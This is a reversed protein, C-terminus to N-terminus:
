KEKMSLKSKKKTKLILKELPIRIVPNGKKNARM